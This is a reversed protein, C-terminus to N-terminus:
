PVPPVPTGAAGRLATGPPRAESPRPQSFPSTIPGSVPWIFGSSSQGQIPGAPAAPAPAAAQAAALQAQIQGPIARPDGELRQQTSQVQALAHQDQQRASALDSQRAQLEAQTRQLEAKKAAIENRAARVTVVTERTQDRLSRVREAISTDQSQIRSLYQYRNLLDDFGNSNLIVTLADPRSSEYIAVLRQRLVRLSRKLRVRMVVLRDKARNLQAEKQQLEAQVIAARNRLTAVEGRLQDLRDGFRQITSSLVAGRSKAHELQARKQDLQSQLDKAPAGTTITLAGAAAAVAVVAVVALRRETRRRSDARSM